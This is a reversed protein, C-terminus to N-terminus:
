RLIAEQGQMKSITDITIKALLHTQGLRDLDVWNLTALRQIHHPIAVFISTMTHPGVMTLYYDVLGAVFAAEVIAASRTNNRVKAAAANNVETTLQLEVCTASRDKDLIKRIENPFYLCRVEDYPLPKTPNKVKFSAGNISQMFGGLQANLKNESTRMLNKRISGTPDVTQTSPPYDGVVVPGLQLHDGAVILRGSSPDLLEIAHLADVSLLQSGEDVMLMQINQLCEAPKKVAFAAKRLGWVTGCVIRVIDVDGSNEYRGHKAGFDAAALTIVGTGGATGDDPKQNYGGLRYILLPRIMGEYGAHPAIIDHLLLVRAVLNDIASHTLATLVITQPGKGKGKLSLGRMIDIFRLITLALFQTKGSGPPGWIIQMRQRIVKAFAQDQSATMDYQRASGLISELFVDDSYSPKQLGWKNPDAILKLFLKSERDMAVLKKLTTNLNPSYERRELIFTKGVDVGLQVTMADYSGKIYVISKDYDVSEIGVVAPSGYGYINLVDKMDDYKLRSRQGEPTDASLIWNPFSNDALAGPNLQSTVMFKGIYESSKSVLHASNGVREVFTLEFSVQQAFSDERSLVVRREQLRQVQVITEWEIFYAFQALIKNELNLRNRMKFTKQTALLISGLDNKCETRLVGYLALLIVNQQVAWKSVKTKVEHGQKGQTWSQFIAGENYGSDDRDRQDVIGPMEADVLWRMINAFSYSGTTPLVVLAQVAADISFVRKDYALAKLTPNHTLGLLDPLATGTTTKQESGDEFMTLFSADEFLNGLLETAKMRTTEKWRYRSTDGPSIIKILLKQVNNMTSRSYFFISLIQPRPLQSTQVLCDYLASVFEEALLVHEDCTTKLDTSFSIANALTRSPMYQQERCIDLSYAYPLRHLPNFLANVLLRENYNLPLELTRVPLAKLRRGHYSDLLMSRGDNNIRLINDFYTRQDEALLHRNRVLDELDEIECRKTGSASSTYASSFSTTLSKLWLASQKSLLPILSLTKQAVADVRCRPLFECQNCVGDIHWEAESLPKSLIAPLQDKIFREVVPQMFSLSFTKPEPDSPIWVGGQTDIEVDSRQNHLSILHDLFIAYMAVQFQHSIKVQLSSKADIIFLKNRRTGNQRMSGPVIRIFDPIFRGFEIGAKTMEPTYFSPDLSFVPQCLTTGIPSTALRFFSDKDKEAECDVKQTIGHQLGAEYALGRGMHAKAMPEPELREFGSDQAPNNSTSVKQSKARQSETWLSIGKLHLMKECAINAHHALASPSFRYRHIEVEGSPVQTSPAVTTTVDLSPNPIPKRVLDRKTITVEIPLPTPQTNAAFRNLRRPQAAPEPQSEPTKPEPESKEPENSLRDIEDWQSATLNLSGFASELSLSEQLSNPATTFSDQSTSVNSDTPFQGGQEGHLTGSNSNLNSTSISASTPVHEGLDITRMLALLEDSAGALTNLAQPNVTIRSM